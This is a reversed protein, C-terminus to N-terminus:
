LIRLVFLPHESFRIMAALDVAFPSKSNECYETIASFNFDAPFGEISIKTIVPVDGSPIHGTTM